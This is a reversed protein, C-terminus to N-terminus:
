RHLRISDLNRNWRYRQSCRVLCGKPIPTEVTHETTVLYVVGNGIANIFTPYNGPVEFGSNTSNGAGGNGYTWLLNGNSGDYAYLIGAYAMSYIKGNVATQALSGSGPSGYYDLAAQGATPGWVKQGTDMSYGIIQMTERWQETFIRTAPDFGGLLVTINNAPPDYTKSWLINGIAGAKPNTNVAFYTYPVSSVSGMFPDGTSPLTGNFYILRDMLIGGVPTASTKLYSGISVNWDYMRADSGDTIPPIVSPSTSAGSYQGTWLNSSNWQQLYYNPNSTNGYNRLQYILIEGNLGRLRYGNPVNTVNFLPNGTFADFARWSSTFLIAPYTGHQNPDQVDYVYGFSLAPVDTRSWLEQGTQLDVCKTAGSSPGSFSVPTTYYLKGNIIIPNQYRQQYASGEFWTNGLITSQNGGVVGGDQLPKTWMIHGSLPGILNDYGNLLMGNGGLNQSYGWGQYGPSGAGLWNSSVAFWNPNNGYIPRTWYNTPLPNFPLDLIPNQQVTLTASASSPLYRDGIFASPPNSVYDYDTYNQGPFSFSLTYTGVQDPAFSYGVNSTPDTVIPFDKTTVSGDPATITLHYNHFRVNNLLSTGDILKNLWMYILTTQGVGIPDPIAQIYAFTPIQWSPTHATAIPILATSAVTSITLFIALIITATKYKSM